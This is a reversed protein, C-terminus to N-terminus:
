VILVIIITLPLVEDDSSSSENVLDVADEESITPILGLEGIAEMIMIFIKLLVLVRTLKTNFVVYKNQSFNSNFNLVYKVFLCM